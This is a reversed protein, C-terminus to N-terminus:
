AHNLTSTVLSLNVQKAKPIMSLQHTHYSCLMSTVSPLWFGAVGLIAGCPASLSLHESSSM